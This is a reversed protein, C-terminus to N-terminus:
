LIDLDEPVRGQESFTLVGKDPKWASLFARDDDQGQAHHWMTASM